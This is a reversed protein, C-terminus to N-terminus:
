KEDEVIKFFSLGFLSQIYLVQEKSASSPLHFGMPDITMESHNRRVLELDFENKYFDVLKSFNESTFFEEAWEDHQFFAPLMEDMCKMRKLELEKKFEIAEEKQDTSFISSGVTRGCFDPCQHNIPEGYDLEEGFHLLEDGAYIEKEIVQFKLKRRKPNSNKTNIKELLTYWYRTNISGVMSSKFDGGEYRFYPSEYATGDVTFPKNCIGYIDFIALQTKNDRNLTIYSDHGGLAFLITINNDRESKLSEYVSQVQPHNFRNKEFDYSWYLEEEIFKPPVGEAICKNLFDEEICMCLGQLENENGVFHHNIYKGSGIESLLRIFFNPLKINNRNQYDELYRLTSIM